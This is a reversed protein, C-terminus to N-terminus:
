DVIMTLLSSVVLKFIPFASSSLLLESDKIKCSDVITCSLVSVPDEVTPPTFTATGAAATSPLVVTCTM